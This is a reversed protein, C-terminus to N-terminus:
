VNSASPHSLTSNPLTSASASLSHEWALVICNDLGQVVARVNSKKQTSPLCSLSPKNGRRARRASCESTASDAHSPATEVSLPENTCRAALSTIPPQCARTKTNIKPVNTRSHSKQTTSYHSALEMTADEPRQRHFYLVLAYFIPYAIELTAESM